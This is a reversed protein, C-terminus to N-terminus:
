APVDTAVGSIFEGLTYTTDIGGETFQIYASGDAGISLIGATGRLGCVATPTQLITKKKSRRTRFLLKGLLLRLKRKVIKVKKVIGEEEEREEIQLNTNSRVEIVAGDNFTITAKGVRTVVRDNSYLPLDKQPKVGWSGQGRIFVTGSFDTLRAVIKDASFAPTSLSTM